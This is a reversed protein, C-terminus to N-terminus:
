ASSEGDSKLYKQILKHAKNAEKAYDKGMSAYIEDYYNASKSFM